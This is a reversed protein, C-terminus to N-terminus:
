PLLFILSVALVSAMLVVFLSMALWGTVEEVLAPDAKVPGVAM